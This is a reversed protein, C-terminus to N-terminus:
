KVQELFTEVLQFVQKQEIDCCIIHGSEKLFFLEKKPSAAQQYIYHASKPKVTDDKLGQIVMLPITTQKILPKTKNLLIKFNLAARLPTERLSCAYKHIRRYDKNKLGEVINRVIRQGNWVYIPSSLTVLAHVPYKQALQFGILGGMSFGIICVKQQATFLKLIESEASSIWDLYSVHNLNSLKGGHGALTPVAVTYGKEELHTALPMVEFPGGTFGHIILCAPKNTSM